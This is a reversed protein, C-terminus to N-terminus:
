MSSFSIILKCLNLERAAMTQIRDELGWQELQYLCYSILVDPPQSLRWSLLYVDSVGDTGGLGPWAEGGELGGNGSNNNNSKKKKKDKSTAKKYLFPWEPVVKTNLTLVWIM